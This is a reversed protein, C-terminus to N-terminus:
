CEPANKVAKLHFYLLLIFAIKVLTGCLFIMMPFNYVLIKEESITWSKFIVTKRQKMMM